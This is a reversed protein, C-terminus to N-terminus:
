IGMSVQVRSSRFLPHNQGSAAHMFTLSPYHWQLVHCYAIESIPTWDGIETLVNHPAAESYGLMLEQVIVRHTQLETNSEIYIKFDKMNISKLIVRVDIPKPTTM